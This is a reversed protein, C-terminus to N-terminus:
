ASGTLKLLSKAGISSVLHWDQWPGLFALPFYLTSVKKRAMSLPALSWGPNV